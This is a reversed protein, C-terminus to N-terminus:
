KILTQTFLTKTSKGLIPKEILITYYCLMDGQWIQMDLKGFLSMYCTDNM